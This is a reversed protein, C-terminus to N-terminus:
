RGHAPVHTGFESHTAVRCPSRYPDNSCVLGAESSSLALLSDFMDCFRDLTALIKDASKSWGLPRRNAHYVDLYLWSAEDLRQTPAIRWTSHVERHAYCVLTEGSQDVICYDAFHVQFRPYLAFWGKISPTKYM